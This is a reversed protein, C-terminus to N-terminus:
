LQTLRWVDADPVEKSAGVDLSIRWGTRSPLRGAITGAYRQNNTRAVYVVRQGVAWCPMPPAVASTTTSTTATCIVGTPTDVAVPASIEFRAIRHPQPELAKRAVTCPPPPPPPPPHHQQPLTSPSVLASAGLRSLARAELAPEVRSTTTTTTTTTSCLHPAARLSETSAALVMVSAGRAATPSAKTRQINHGRSRKWSTAPSATAATATTTTTTAAMSHHAFAKCFNKNAVHAIPAVAEKSMEMVVETMSLRHNADMDLLQACLCFHLKNARSKTERLMEELATPVAHIPKASTGIRDAIFCGTVIETILLGLAWCDDGPQQRMCKAAEPSMYPINLRCTATPGVNFFEACGLDVLVVRGTNSILVNESWIDRHVVGRQHMHALASALQPLVQQVLGPQSGKQRIRSSLPESNSVYNMAICLYPPESGVNPLRSRSALVDVLRVINPHDLASMVKVEHRIRAEDGREWCRRLSIVKVALSRVRPTDDVLIVDGLSGSGIKRSERLDMEEDLKGLVELPCEGALYRVVRDAAPAAGKSIGSIRGKTAPLALQHYGPQPGVVPMQNWVLSGGRIAGM